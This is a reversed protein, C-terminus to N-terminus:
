DGGIMFNYRTELQKLERHNRLYNEVATKRRHCSECLLQLCEIDGKSARLIHTRSHGIRREKCGGGYIHDVELRDTSYCYWCKGGLNEIAQQRIKHQYRQSKNM